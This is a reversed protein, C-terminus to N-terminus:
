QESPISSNESVTPSSQSASSLSDSIIKSNMEDMQQATERRKNRSKVNKTQQKKRRTRKQIPIFTKVIEFSIIEENAAGPYNEQNENLTYIPQHLHFTNDTENYEVSSFSYKLNMIQEVQPSIMTLYITVAEKIFQIDNTTKFNNVYDNYIELNAYFDTQLLKLQAKKEPNSSFQEFEIMIEQLLTLNDSLLNNYVKFAGIAENQSKSYGFILDNKAMIIREKFYNIKHKYIAITEQYTNTIPISIQINLICPAVDDGCVAKLIRVDNDNMAARKTSFITGVPRKCNICPPKLQRYKNRKDQWSLSAMESRTIFQSKIRAKSTEYQEKYEYYRSIADYYESQDARTERAIVGDNEVRTILPIQVNSATSTSFDPSFPAYGPSLDGDGNIAVPGSITSSSLSESM